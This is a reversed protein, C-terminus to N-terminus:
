TKEIWLQERKEQQENEKLIAQDVIKEMDREKENDLYLEANHKHSHELSVNTLNHFISYNDLMLDDNQMNYSHTDANVGGVLDENYEITQQVLNEKMLSSMRNITKTSLEAGYNSINPDQLERSNMQELIDKGYSIDDDELDINLSLQTISEGIYSNETGIDSGLISYEAISSKEQNVSPSKSGSNNNGTDTKKSVGSQIIPSSTENVKEKKEDIKSAKQLKPSKTGIGVGIGGAKVKSSSGSKKFLKGLSLYSFGSGKSFNLRTTDESKSRSSNFMGEGNRINRDYITEFLNKKEMVINEDTEYDGPIGQDVFGVKKKKPIFDTVSTTESKPSTAFKNTDWNNYLEDKVNSLGSNARGSDLSHRFGYDTITGRFKQRFSGGDGGDRFEISEEEIRSLDYTDSAMNGDPVHHEPEDYSTADVKSYRVKIVKWFELCMSM